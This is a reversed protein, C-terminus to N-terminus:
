KKKISAIAIGIEYLLTLPIAVIAMSFPDPPTMIASIIFAFVYFYPRIKKLTTIQIVELKVLAIIAIPLESIIGGSLVWYFIFNILKEITWLNEAGKITFRLLASFVVGILLYACVMGGIFFVTCPAIMYFFAKVENAKLGPSVFRWICLLMLPFALIVGAFFSMKMKIIVADFPGSLVKKVVMESHELQFDSIPAMMFELIYDVFCFSVISTILLIGILKFIMWRLEELHEGVSMEHNNRINDM